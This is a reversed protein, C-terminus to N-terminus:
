FFVDLNTHMKKYDWLSNYRDFVCYEFGSVCWGTENTLENSLGYDEWDDDNFFENEVTVLVEQPKDILKDDGDCDYDIDYFMITNVPTTNANLMNM